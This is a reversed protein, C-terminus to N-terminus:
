VNKGWGNFIFKEASKKTLYLLGFIIAGLILLLFRIGFVESVTGSFIVPIVTLATSVFWFNGFVRGRLGGPTVEQIFTTSPIAIGVFSATLLTMTLGGTLSRLMNPMEPIVFILMFLCIILTDLSVEILKRKRWGNRLLKPVLLAGLIAGLAGPYLLVPGVRNLSLEFIDQVILPINVVVITLSIQISLLLVFPALVMRNDKIYRFGDSINKFFDYIIDEIKSKRSLAKMDPLFSVSIFAFLLFISCIAITIEFGLYNVLLGASGFAIILATQQTLFFISNAQALHKKDVISPLTSSEAPIYFQNLLSYLFVAGYLLFTSSQYMLSYLFVIIAQFLNTVMLLKRKNFMDSAAAGFPGILIAPLAFTVWLMSTAITSGTQTFILLILVFNMIQITLQSLIQSGMLQLFNINKFLPKYDKM